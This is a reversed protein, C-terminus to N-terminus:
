GVAKSNLVANAYDNIEDLSYGLRLLWTFCDQADINGGEFSLVPESQGIEAPKTVISKQAEQLKSLVISGDIKEDLQTVGM